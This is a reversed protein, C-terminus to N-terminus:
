FCRYNPAEFVKKKLIEVHFDTKLKSVPPNYAMIENKCKKNCGGANAFGSRALTINLVRVKIM